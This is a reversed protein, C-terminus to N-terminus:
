LTRITLSPEPNGLTAGPVEQGKRLMDGIMRMDPSHRMFAEPLETTDTVVPNRRYSLTATYLPREVSKLGLTELMRRMTDRIRSARTDLRKLRQQGEEIFRRDKNALEALHDLVAMVKTEGELTDAKLKDDGLEGLEALLKAADAMAAEIERPNM